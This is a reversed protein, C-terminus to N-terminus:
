LAGKLNYVCAHRVHPRIGLVALMEDVEDPREFTISAAMNEPLVRAEAQVDERIERRQIVIDWVLFGISALLLATVTPALTLLRLKRRIPLDRFPTM